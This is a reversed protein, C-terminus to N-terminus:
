LKFMLRQNIDKIDPSNISVAFGKQNIRIQYVRVGFILKENPVDGEILEIARQLALEKPPGTDSSELVVDLLEKVYKVCTLHIIGKTGWQLGKVDIYDM